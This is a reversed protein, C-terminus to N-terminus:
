ALLEKMKEIHTIPLQCQQNKCVYITAKNKIQPLEKIFPVLKEILSDKFDPEKLIVVKKPLFISNISQIIERINM